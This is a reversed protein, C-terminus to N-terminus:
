DQFLRNMLLSTWEKVKERAKIASTRTPRRNTDSAAQVLIDPTMNIAPETTQINQPYNHQISRTVPPQSNPVLQNTQSEERDTSSISNSNKQNSLPVTSETDLELPFLHGISRTYTEGSPLKVKAVRIQGDSGKFLEIIKGVKWHARNGDSKLQVWEEIKPTRDVIVRPQRHKDCRERLSTLYQNTFMKSFESLIMQGRKWGEILNTKTTTAPEYFERDSTETTLSGGVRLFDAPSLVHELEAGVTTLPRTNLVAEVEKVVTYLQNNSLLHKDVTRKMCHNVLGILREYFGGVWPALEPIFKWRLDNKICYDSTLVDSTLKFQSANDSVILIPLGRVAVLRRIALLCEEASLDKVVELHIARITLCTFLCVWRKEKTGNGVFLPGFYDLGVFAFLLSLRVRETPLDPMGPLKFPGGGYKVCQTCKRLVKQVTSKGHPVWFKKRLLSLTHSVGVHYHQKHLDIIVRKTFETKTPLLIPEKQDDTLSSNKFRGKCWIIGDQDKYLKLARSLDTTRGQVERPFYDAQIELITESDNYDPNQENHTSALDTRNIEVTDACHGSVSNSLGEGTLSIQTEVTDKSSSHTPWQQINKTM